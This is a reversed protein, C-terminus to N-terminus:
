RTEEGLIEDVLEKAVIDASLATLLAFPQLLPNRFRYVYRREAGARRLVSGREATTFASLHNAFNAIDYPRGMIRSMPEKVAGPTFYGLRNKEALACAALVQAFLNDRRPSQVATQYERLLWHKRVVANIADRVDDVDVEERDSMVARQAAYLSLMHVYQPMGEALRGIRRRAAATITMNVEALGDDVIATLEAREMRGLQVEAIARQISEHEGILADISDAVGVIVLRTEVAHDSLAKIADAMLSLGDDDEFRDFEDLIILRPPEANQLIRRIVDPGARGLTWDDPVEIDMEELVRTWLSKFKDDTTCNIRVTPRRNGWVPTLFDSMVNALSTKGVGREGYLVIHTGPQAVSNIIDMIQDVRGHFRDRRLVPTGPTFVGTLAGFRRLKADLNPDTV